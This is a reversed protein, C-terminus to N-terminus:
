QSIEKMVAEIEGIFAQAKSVLLDHYHQARDHQMDVGRCAAIYRDTNIVGIAFQAGANDFKTTIEIGCEERFRVSSEYRGSVEKSVEM